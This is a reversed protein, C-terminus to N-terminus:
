RRLIKWTATRGSDKGPTSKGVKQFIMNESNEPRKPGKLAWNELKKIQLTTHYSIVHYSVTDYSM